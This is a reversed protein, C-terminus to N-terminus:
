SIAYPTQRERVEKLMIIDLDIWAAAFPMIENREITFTGNCTHGVDEKDMGREISM